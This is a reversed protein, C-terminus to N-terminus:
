PKSELKIDFTGGKEKVHYSLRGKDTSYKLPISDRGGYLMPPENASAPILSGDPRVMRSIYIIYDGPLVGDKSEGNGLDTYLDYKGEADTQGVAGHFGKESKPAFRISAGELPKGDLTIVGTVEVTSGLKPPAQGGSSCGFAIMTGFSVVCCLIRGYAMSM